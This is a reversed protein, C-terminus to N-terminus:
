TNGSAVEVLWVLITRNYLKARSAEDNGFKLTYTCFNGIIRRMRNLRLFYHPM